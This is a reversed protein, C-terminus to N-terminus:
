RDLVVDCDMTVFWRGRATSQAQELARIRDNQSNLAFSTAVSRVPIHSRARRLEAVLQEFHHDEESYVLILEIFPYSQGMISQITRQVKSISGHMPVFLTIVGYAGSARRALFRNRSTLGFWTELFILLTALAALWCVFLLGFQLVSEM